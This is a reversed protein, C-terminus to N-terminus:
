FDSKYLELYQRGVVNWNYRKLITNYANEVRSRTMDVNEFIQLISNKIARADEVDVLIGNRGDELLEINGGTRTAIIPIKLAMAELLTTSLGEKRSPLVLVDSGKMIKLTESREKFGLFHINDRGKALSMLRNREPGDGIILLHIDENLDIFARILVDVGKEHSLRGVYVVQKDYYRVGETPMDDLWIANPIYFVRYGRMRYEEATEKSVVTVINMWSFAKEEILRALYGIVKGHLLYVQESFVGHITLVKTGGKQIKAPLVSPVNHSHIVDFRRGQIRDFLSKLSSTIMFSPNKLGKIPLIPTNESSLVEVEFNNMRLFRVLGNVHQAIGGLGRAKPTIILVKM